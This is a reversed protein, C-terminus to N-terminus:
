FIYKQSPWLLLVINIETVTVTRLFIFLTATQWNRERPWNTCSNYLTWSTLGIYYLNVAYDDIKYFRSSYPHAHLKLLIQFHVNVFNTDLSNIFFPHFVAPKPMVLVILRYHSGHTCSSIHYGCDPNVVHSIVSLVYSIAYEM